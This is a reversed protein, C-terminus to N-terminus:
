VDGAVMQGMAAIVLYTSQRGILMVNYTTLFSDSSASFIIIAILLFWPLIGGHIFVLIAIKRVRQVLLSSQQKSIEVMFVGVM